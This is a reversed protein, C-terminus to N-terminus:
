FMYYLVFNILLQRDTNAAITFDYWKQALIGITNNILTIINNKVGEVEDAGTVHIDTSLRIHEMVYIAFSLPLKNSNTFIGLTPSPGVATCKMDLTLTAVSATNNTIKGVYYIVPGGDRKSSMGTPSRLKTAHGSSTVYLSKGVSLTGMVSPTIQSVVDPDYCDGNYFRAYRCVKYGVDVNSSIKLSSTVLMKVDHGSSLVSDLLQTSPYRTSYTLADVTPNLKGFITASNVTGISGGIEYGPSIITFEYVNNPQMTVTATKNASDAINITKYGAIHPYVPDYAWPFTAYKIYDYHDNM